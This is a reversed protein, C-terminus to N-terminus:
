KARQITFKGFDFGIDIGRGSGKLVLSVLGKTMAQVDTSEGAGAHAESQAYSGFLESISRAGTFTGTGGVIESKGFTIGGGKARIKVRAEQGDSCRIMGDGSATKYFASWGRLNFTMKCDVLGQTAKEAAHLSAPTCISIVLTCLMAITAIKAPIM